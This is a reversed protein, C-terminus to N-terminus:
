ATEYVSKPRTSSRRIPITKARLPWVACSSSFALSCVGIRKMVRRGECNILRNERILTDLFLSDPDLTLYGLSSNGHLTKEIRGDDESLPPTLFLTPSRVQFELQSVSSGWPKSHTKITPVVTAQRPALSPHPVDLPRKVRGAASAPWSRTAADTSRRQQPSRVSAPPANWITAPTSRVEVIFLNAPRTRHPRNRPPTPSMPALIRYRALSSAPAARDSRRGFWRVAVV